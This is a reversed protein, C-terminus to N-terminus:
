EASEPVPREPRHGRRLRTVDLRVTARDVMAEAAALEHVDKAEARMTQARVLAAEVEAAVLDDAHDAEDALLRVRDPTVELLGGFTAFVADSGDAGRVVVPGPMVMATLPEHGPLVGMDGVATRLSVEAIDGDYKKGALTLLEFKM